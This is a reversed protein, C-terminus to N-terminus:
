TKLNRERLENAADFLSKYKSAFMRDAASDLTEKISIEDPNISLPKYIYAVVGDITSIEKKVANNSRTTYFLIPVDIPINKLGRRIERANTIGENYKYDYKIFKGSTHIPLKVATVLVLPLDKILGDLVTGEKCEERFTSSNNYTKGSAFMNIYADALSKEHEFVIVNREKLPLYLVQCEKNLIEATDKMLIGLEQVAETMKVCKTELISM